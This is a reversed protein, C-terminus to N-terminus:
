TSNSDQNRSSAQYIRKQSSSQIRSRKKRSTWCINRRSQKTRGSTLILCCISRIRCHHNTNFRTRCLASMKWVRLEGNPGKEHSQRITGIQIEADDDLKSWAEWMYRPVKALYLTQFTPDTNFELDGADEYIDDEEFASPSAGAADPDPKIHADAM